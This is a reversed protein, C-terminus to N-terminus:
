SVSDQQVESEQTSSVAYQSPCARKEDKDKPYSTAGELIETAIDM